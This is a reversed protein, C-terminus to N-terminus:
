KKQAEAYSQTRTPQGIGSIELLLENQNPPTDGPDIGQCETIIKERFWVDFPENSNMLLDFFKTPNDVDVWVAGIDGNPTHQLWVQVAHVGMRQRSKVFEERRTTKIEQLYKKMTETKGPLIRLAFAYMAM